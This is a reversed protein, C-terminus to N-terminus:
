RWRRYHYYSTQRYRRWGHRNTSYERFRYRRYFRENFRAQRPGRGDWRGDRADHCNVFKGCKEGFGRFEHGRGQALVAGPLLVLAGLLVVRLANVLKSLKM